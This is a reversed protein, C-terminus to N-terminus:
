NSIGSCVAEAQGAVPKRRAAVWFHSLSLFTRMREQLFCIVIYRIGIVYRQTQLHVKNVFM